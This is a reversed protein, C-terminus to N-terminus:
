VDTYIIRCAGSGLLALQADTDGPFLFIPSIGAVGAVYFPATPPGLNTFQVSVAADHVVQFRRAARPFPGALIAPGMANLAAIIFYGAQTDM